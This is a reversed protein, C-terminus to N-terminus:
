KAKKFDVIHLMLNKQGNWEDIEIKCVCDITEGVEPLDERGAASFALAKCGFGESGELQFVVHANDKGIKKISAVRMHEVLFLPEPNKMGFPEFKKLEEYTDWNIDECSLKADIVLTKVPPNGAFIKEARKNLIERVKDKNEIKCSFGGAQPHGGYRILFDKAETLAEVINFGEVTRASGAIVGGDQVQFIFAPKYYKEVLKGAVIGLVGLPWNKDGLFIVPVDANKEYADQAERVIRVVLAQRARNTEEIDQARQQAEEEDQTTLLAYATNAHDIRGASNIRPALVFGITQPTLNTSHADEDLTPKVGAVKMLERLGLRKQHAMVYLGYHVLTRNEGLLPMMDAITALAVLDLMWKEWGASPNGLLGLAPNERATSLLAQVVKFAVGAGCLDKFPYTDDKQHANVFAYAPPVEELVQHHDTIIVDIGKENALAVESVNTSGCDVTVVLGVGSNAFEEVANTNVGYGEKSRDPIYASVPYDEGALEHITTVLITSGSVGDADYDGYIIIKEKKSIARIIRDAAKQMDKMLFPAHLDAEYDPNFFEDIEKQAHLGRQWLLNQAVHSFEPFANRFEDPAQQAVIWQKPAM